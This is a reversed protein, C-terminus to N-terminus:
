SCLRILPLPLPLPLRAGEIDFGEARAAEEAQVVDGRTMKVLKRCNCCWLPGEGPADRPVQEALLMAGSCKGPVRNRVGPRKVLVTHQHVPYGVQVFSPPLEPPPPAKAKKARSM